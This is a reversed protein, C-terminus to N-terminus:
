CGLFALLSGVQEGAVCWNVCCVDDWVCALAGDCRCYLRVPDKIGVGKLTRLSALWGVAVWLQTIGTHWGDGMVM